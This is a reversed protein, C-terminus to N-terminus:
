TALTHQLAPRQSSVLLQGGTQCLCCWCAGQWVWWLGFSLWWHHQHCRQSLRNLFLYFCQAVGTLSLFGQLYWPQLFFLLSSTCRAGSCLEGTRHAWPLGCHRLCGGHLGHVVGCWLLHLDRLPLQSERLAWFSASEPCSREVQPSSSVCFYIKQCSRHGTLSKCRLLTNM